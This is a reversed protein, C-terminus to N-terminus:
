FSYNRRLFFPSILKAKDEESAIINGEYFGSCTSFLSLGRYVVRHGDSYFEMGLDAINKYRPEVMIGGQKAITNRIWNETATDISDAIYRVGRGNNSWPEKVVIAQHRSLLDNVEDVTSAYWSQGVMPGVASILGRDDM